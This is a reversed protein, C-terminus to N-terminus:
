GDIVSLIAVSGRGHPENGKRDSRVENGATAAPVSTVPTAAPITPTAPKAEPKPAQSTKMRLVQLFAKTSLFQNSVTGDEFTLTLGEVGEKGSLSCTGVGASMVSLKVAM